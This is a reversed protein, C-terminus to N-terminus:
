ELQLLNGQLFPSVNFPSFSTAELHQYTKGWFVSQTRINGKVSHSKLTELLCGEPFGDLIECRVVCIQAGKNQAM